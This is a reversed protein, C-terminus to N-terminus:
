KIMAGLSGMQSTKDSNTLAILDVRGTHADVGVDLVTGTPESQGQPVAAHALKFSGHLEVWAVESSDYTSLPSAGSAGVYPALSATMMGLSTKVGGALTAKADGAEVAVGVAVTMLEATSKAPGSPTSYSPAVPAAGPIVAPVTGSTLSQPRTTTESGSNLLAAAGECPATSYVLSGLAYDPNNPKEACFGPSAYYSAQNWSHWTADTWEGEGIMTGNNVPATENYYDELGEEIDKSYTEFGSPDYCAAQANDFYVCWTNNGEALNYIWWGSGVSPGYTYDREIYGIQAKLAYFWLPETSTTDGTKDFTGYEHGVYIGNEIWYTGPGFATWMENNIRDGSAAGPVAVQSITVGAYQGQVKEYEPGMMWYAIAYCHDNNPLPPCPSASSPAATVCMLLLASLGTLVMITPRPMGDKGPHAALMRAYARLALHM